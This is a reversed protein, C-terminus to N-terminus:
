YYRGLAPSSEATAKTGTGYMSYLSHRHRHAHLHPLLGCRQGYERLVGALLEFLQVHHRADVRVARVEQKADGTDEEVELVVRDSGLHEGVELAVVRLKLRCERGGGVSHAIRREARHKADRKM